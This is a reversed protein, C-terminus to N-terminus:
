KLLLLSFVQNFECHFSQMRRLWKKLMITVISFAPLARWEPYIEEFTYQFETFLFGLKEHLSLVTKRFNMYYSLFYVMRECASPIAELHM